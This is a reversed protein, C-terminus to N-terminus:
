IGNEFFVNPYSLEIFAQADFARHTLMGTEGLWKEFTKTFDTMAPDDSFQEYVEPKFKVELTDTNFDASENILNEFMKENSRLLTAKLFVGLESSSSDSLLRAIESTILQDLAAEDLGPSFKNKRLNFYRNVKDELGSRRPDQISLPLLGLNVGNGNLSTSGLVHDKVSDFSAPDGCIDEMCQGHHKPAISVGETSQCNLTSQEQEIFEPDLLRLLPQISLGNAFAPLSVIFILLIKVLM